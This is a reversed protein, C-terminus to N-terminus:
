ERRPPNVTIHTLLLCSALATRVSFEAGKRTPAPGHVPASLADYAKGIVKAHAESVLKSLGVKVLPEGSLKKVFQELANRASACAQRPGDKSDGTLADLAGLLTQAIEPHSRMETEIARRDNVPALGVDEFGRPDALIRAERERRARQVKERALENLYQPIDQNYLLDMACIDDLVAAVKRVRTELRVAQKAQTLKRVLTHSNGRQTLSPKRVSMTRLLSITHAVSSDLDSEIRATQSQRQLSMALRAAERAKRKSVGFAGSVLAAGGAEVVRHFPAGASLQEVEGLLRHAYQRYSELM